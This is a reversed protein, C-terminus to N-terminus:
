LYSTINEFDVVCGSFKPTRTGKFEVTRWSIVYIAFEQIRVTINSCFLHLYSATDSLSYHTVKRLIATSECKCGFRRADSELSAGQM